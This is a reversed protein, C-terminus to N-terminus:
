SAGAAKDAREPGQGEVPVATGLSQVATCLATRNRVSGRTSYQKKSQSRQFLNLRRSMDVENAQRSM